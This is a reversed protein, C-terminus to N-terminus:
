ENEQCEKVEEKVKFKTRAVEQWSDNRSTAVYWKWGAWQGQDNKVAQVLLVGALQLEKSARNLQRDKMRAFRRLLDTRRVTWGPPRSFLYAWLGKAEASLAPDEIIELPVIAYGTIQEPQVKIYNRAATDM